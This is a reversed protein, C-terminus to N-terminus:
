FLKNILVFLKCIAKIISIRTTLYKRIKELFIIDKKFFIQSLQYLLLSYYATITM